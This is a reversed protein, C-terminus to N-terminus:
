LTDVNKPTHTHTGWSTKLILHPWRDPPIRVTHESRGRLEKMSLYIFSFSLATSKIVVALATIM